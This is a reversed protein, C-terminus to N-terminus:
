RSVGPDPFLGIVEPAASAPMPATGDPKTTAAPPQDRVMRAGFYRREAAEVDEGVVVGRAAWGRRDLAWRRLSAAEMGLFLALLLGVLVTLGASAGVLDVALALVFAVVLYIALALWMRHRLMWLPGFLFAAWSFADRVFVFGMAHARMDGQRPLPEHVTYVAM